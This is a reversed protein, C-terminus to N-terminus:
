RWKYFIFIPFVVFKLNGQLNSISCWTLDDSLHKRFVAEIEEPTKLINVGMEALRKVHEVDEKRITLELDRGDPLQTTVVGEEFDSPLVYLQFVQRKLWLLQM